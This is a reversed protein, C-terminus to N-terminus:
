PVGPGDNALLVGDGSALFVGDDIALFVGDDIALFVDGDSALPLYDSHFVAWLADNGRFKGNAEVVRLKDYV